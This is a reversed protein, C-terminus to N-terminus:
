LESLMNLFDENPKFGKGEVSYESKIKHVFYMDIKGKNKAEIKGRYECEFFDKIIKYTVGSINVKGVEGSQEMRAAINVTDGWIDYAFKKKGVVGAVVEGTHVGLRLEWIPLDHAQKLENLDNMYRQIDLAALVIDFPHSKNRIPLGGACMYSDGITKIKELYYKDIIEDFKVFYNHLEGVLEEPSLGECIKTFGKFDTFLVSAKKYSRPASTGKEKLEDSTGAPLINNLLTDSKQKECQIIEEAEKIKTIDADIAVLQKIEDEDDLIPTLTTQVWINNGLKTTAQSVYMVSKKSLMCDEIVKRINPHSSSEFITNGKESRFEEFTYGFLKTFADNVWELTGDASAILISNDTEQAVLSLKSLKHNLEELTEAQARLEESQQEVKAKEEMLMLTRKDVEDILKQKVRIHQRERYKIIIVITSVLTIALLLYFWWRFWFPPLITFKFALPQKNWIGDSNCAMLLFTYTGHSLNQYPVKRDTIPTRWNKDLGDLKWKFKVKDPSKLEIGTFEFTLYNKDYPLEIDTPYNNIAKQESYDAWNVPNNFLQVDLLHLLPQNKNMEDADFNYQTAGKVTGFWICGKADETAAAINTEIGAFGETKGYTRTIVDHNKTNYEIRNIGKETGAWIYNRSDCYMLYINDSNLGHQTTYTHFKKGDYKSVGYGFTGFWLNGNKDQTIGLVQNDALGDEVSLNTIQSETNKNDSIIMNSNYESSIRDVGADETGIWINGELDELISYVSNSAIGENKTLDTFTKGNYISIGDATGIWLNHLHDEFICRIQQSVLGQKVSINTFKKGDYKSLGNYRTGFWINGSSDIKSCYVENSALGNTVNFNLLKKGDYYYSGGGLTSFWINQQKDILISMVMPNALGDIKTVHMFREGEFKSIGSGDTAFWIDGSRDCLMSKINNSSLGNNVNFYLFQKGDWRCAGAVGTAFWVNGKRDCVVSTIDEAPLGDKQTLNVFNKGDFKSVGKNTAIWIFGKNDQAISNIHSSILGQQATYNDFVKGNYVFVGKSETGIWMKSDRSVFLVPVGTNLPLKSPNIKQFVTDTLLFLGREQTGVWLAGRRDQTISIITNSLLGDDRGYKKYTKGDFKNLYGDKTGIWFNGDRDQFIARIQNNSLGNQTTYNLFNIGDFKSIGGGDTGVWLFGGKDEYLSYIQSQALGQEVTYNTFNYKQGQVVSVILFLLIFQLYKM